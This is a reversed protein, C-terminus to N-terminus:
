SQEEVVEADDPLLVSLYFRDHSEDEYRLCHADETKNASYIEINNGDFLSTIKVMRDCSNIVTFNFLEKDVEARIEEKSFEHDKSEFIIKGNEFTIFIRNNPNDKSVLNMRRLADLMVKKDIVAKSEHSYAEKYDDTLLNPLAYKNITVIFETNNIFFTLYDEYLKINIEKVQSREVVPLIFGPLYLFMDKDTDTFIICSALSDSAVLCGGQLSVVELNFKPDYAGVFHKAKDIKDINKIAVTKKQNGLDIDDPDPVMRSQQKLTYTNNGFKVYDKTIEVDSDIPINKILNYFVNNEYVVDFDDDGPATTSITTILVGEKNYQIFRAKEGRVQILLKSFLPSGSNSLAVYFTLFDLDKRNIIM